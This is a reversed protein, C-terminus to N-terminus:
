CSVEAAGQVESYLSSRLVSSPFEKLASELMSICRIFARKYMKNCAPIGPRVWSCTFLWPSAVSAHRIASTPASLCAAHFDTTCLLCYFSGHQTKHFHHHTLPFSARHRFSHELDGAVLVSFVSLNEEIGLYIKM